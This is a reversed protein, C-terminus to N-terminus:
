TKLCVFGFLLCVIRNGEEGFNCGEAMDTFSFASFVEHNVVRGNKRPFSGVSPLEPWMCLKKNECNIKFSKGNM